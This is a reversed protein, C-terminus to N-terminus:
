GLQFSSKGCYSQTKGNPYAVFNNFYITGDKEHISIIGDNWLICFNNESELAKKTINTVSGDYIHKLSQWNIIQTSCFLWLWTIKYLLGFCIGIFLLIILFSQLRILLIKFNPHFIFYGIILFPSLWLLSWTGTILIYLIFGFSALHPFLVLLTIRDPSSSKYLSKKMIKLALDQRAGLSITGNM